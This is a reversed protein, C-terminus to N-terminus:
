LLSAEPSSSSSSHIEVDEDKIDQVEIIKVSSCKSPTLLPSLSLSESHTLLNSLISPTLSRPYVPTLLSSTLAPKDIGFPESALSKIEPTLGSSSRRKKPYSFLCRPFHGEDFIAQTSCFIVNEQTHCIFRYSNDKYGIFIM